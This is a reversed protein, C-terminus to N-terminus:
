ASAPCFSYISRLNESEVDILPLFGNIEFSYGACQHGRGIHLHLSKESFRHGKGCVLPILHPIQMIHGGGEAGLRSHFLLGKHGSDDTFAVSIAKQTGVAVGRQSGTTTLSTLAVRTDQSRAKRRSSPSRGAANTVAFFKSRGQFTTGTPVTHRRYKAQIILTALTHINSLIKRCGKTRLHTAMLRQNANVVLTTGNYFAAIIYGSCEPSLFVPMLRQDNYFFFRAWLRRQKFVMTNIDPICTGVLHSGGHIGPIPGASVVQWQNGLFVCYEAALPHIDKVRVLYDAGLAGPLVLIGRIKDHLNGSQVASVPIFIPIDETCELLTGAPIGEVGNM